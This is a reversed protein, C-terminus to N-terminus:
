FDANRPTRPFPIVDRVNAMGTAYILTREFGLGFGAHPVTGYKRLDRYWWYDDKELDLEELRADLVDLREERQSGGIIEGIGPALVDMAAVTNGDDNMRMYFAKIDRPYNMVVVPRGIHEETLWREHESQLDMGWNVPFEFKHGDAVAKELRAIADTYDMREFSADVFKELREICGKDVRQQFFAMDDGREDLLTRFISKLFDEALDADDSLNAFAIEPEIMWFEALHRSTNSNEARFTPGFTYVKSLALCYSEVNLQGSVTLNTEKGFFDQAFDVAGSKTRPLNELDLTSVRFMEGAGECDSGTVIPTHVWYFGNEHFYRHIANAVCHRVRAMASFANTRVRLHAQERLYEFTHRKAPMPYTEPDDVMGVTEIRTALLEVSQGKGESAVVEGEAILSCGTTLNQVDTAYNELEGPAVVQAPEFCSGDHLQVFSLGAKSDRRTRVWGRLRIRDGVAVGDQTLLAAVSILRFDESM